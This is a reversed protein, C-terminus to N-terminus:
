RPLGDVINRNGESKKGYHIDNRPQAQGADEVKNYIVARGATPPYYRFGTLSRMM